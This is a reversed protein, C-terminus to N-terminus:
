GEGGKVLRANPLQHLHGRGLSAVGAGVELHAKAALMAAIRLGDLEAVLDPEVVDGARGEPQQRCPKCRCLRCNFFLLSAAVNVGGALRCDPLVAPACGFPQARPANLPEGTERCKVYSRPNSQQADLVGDWSIADLHDFSNLQGGRVHELLRLGLGAQVKLVLPGLKSIRRAYSM